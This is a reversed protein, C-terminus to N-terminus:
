ADKENSSTLKGATIGPIGSGSVHYDIVVASVNRFDGFPPYKLGSATQMDGIPVGRMSALESIPHGPKHGEGVAAAKAQIQGM